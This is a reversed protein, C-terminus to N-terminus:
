DAIELWDLVAELDDWSKVGVAEEMGGQVQIGFDPGLQELEELEQTSMPFALLIPFRMLCEQLERPLWSRIFDSWSAGSTYGDLVIWAVQGEWTTCAAIIETASAGPEVVVQKMLQFCGLVAADEPTAHPGLQIWKLGLQIAMERINGAEAFGFEGVPEPGSVWELIAKAKTVDLGGPAQVDLSIGLWDVERAAFYRADTLHTVNGAKLKRKYM